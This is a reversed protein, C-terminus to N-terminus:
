RIAAVFSDLSEPYKEAAAERLPRVIPRDGRPARERQPFAEVLAVRGAEDAVAAVAAIRAETPDVNHSELLAVAAARREQSDLRAEIRALSETLKVVNPDITASKNSEAMPPTRRKMPDTEEAVV